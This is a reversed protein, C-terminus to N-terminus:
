ASERGEGPIDKRTFEEPHDAAYAHAILKAFIALAREMEAPTCPRPSVARRIKFRGRRRSEEAKMM